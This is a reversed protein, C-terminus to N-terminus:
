SLGPIYVGKSSYIILSALFLYLFHSLPHFFLFRLFIRAPLAAVPEAAASRALQEDLKIKQARREQMEILVSRACSFAEIHVKKEVSRVM